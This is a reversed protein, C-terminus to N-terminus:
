VIYEQKSRRLLYILVPGGLLATVVGVPLEAPSVVTRAFADALILYSAGCIASLGLLRGHEPGVILRVGHPVLLGVFGIIGGLLVACATLLSGVAVLMARSLEVNMGLQKAYDEGLAFVNLIRRLPFSLIGGVFLMMTPWILQSWEAFAVSGHLWLTLNRANDSFESRLYVIVTSAESLMMSIAFGCLLLAVTATKGGVRAVAYVVTITLVAGLFAFIAAGGFGLLTSGPFLVMGLAAGFAAGGSSGLVYPEAMPNRFLGQFLVGALSLSAGIVAATIVRPLRIYFLITRYDASIASQNGTLVGMIQRPSIHIAGAVVGILLSALFLLVAM